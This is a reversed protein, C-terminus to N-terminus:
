VVTLKSPRPNSKFGLTAESKTRKITISLTFFIRVDFLGIPSPCTVIIVKMSKLRRSCLFLIRPLWTHLGFFHLPFKPIWKTESWLKFMLRFNYNVLGQVAVPFRWSSAVAILVEFESEGTTSGDDCTKHLETPSLWIENDFDEDSPHSILNKNSANRWSM